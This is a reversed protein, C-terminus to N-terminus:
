NEIVDADKKGFLYLTTVGFIGSLLSACLIAVKSTDVVLSDNFALLAIFISMTFGIGALLGAGLIQNWSVGEPLTSLGIKVALLTFLFIGVPKGIFLGGIIGLANNSTLGGLLEPSIMIGTNALAFLPIIFLAVPKHLLHQLKYSVSKESGDRFPIAFALLVGTITAHVGSEHMFFWMLIGPIIYLSLKNIGARNMILLIIFVGIALAFYMLSFGKAYFIAIIIIAGLDDIIALATLFVKLTAPVRSGLLSMMGLAFAIDTAMPIGFGSQAYTGANLSYHISAPVLMGGVAAFIPILAKRFDSLEGIYLEREIELGVLLFFVAMLLDNIWHYAPHHMDISGISFGFKFKFISLYQEGFPSNALTLSIVTCLILLYGGTRESDFFEKFLVTLKDKM